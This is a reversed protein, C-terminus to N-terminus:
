QRLGAGIFSRDQTEQPSGNGSHDRASRRVQETRQRTARWRAAPAAFRGAAASPAVVANSSGEVPRPATVDAPDGVSAGATVGAAVKM